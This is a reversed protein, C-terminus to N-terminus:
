FLVLFCRLLLKEVGSAQIDGKFDLGYIIEKPLEELRRNLYLKSFVKIDFIGKNFFYNILNFFYRSAIGGFKQKWFIEYDFAIKM